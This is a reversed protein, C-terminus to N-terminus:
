IGCHWCLGYLVEYFKKPDAESLFRRAKDQSLWVLPNELEINFRQLLRVLDQHKRSIVEEKGDRRSILRYNSSNQLINREIIIEKGYSSHAAAGENTLTVRIKASRRGEKIYNQMLKGRENTKSLGGLGM